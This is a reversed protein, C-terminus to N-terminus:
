QCSPGSSVSSSLYHPCLEPKCKHVRCQHCFQPIEMPYSFPSFKEKFLLSVTAAKTLYDHSSRNADVVLRMHESVRSISVFRVQLGPKLKCRFPTYPAMTRVIVLFSFSPSVKILPSLCKRWLIPALCFCVIVLFLPGPCFGGDFM